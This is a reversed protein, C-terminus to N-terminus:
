PKKKGSLEANGSIEPKNSGTIKNLPDFFVDPLAPLDPTGEVEKLTQKLNDAFRVWPGQEQEQDIQKEFNNERHFFYEQLNRYVNKCM